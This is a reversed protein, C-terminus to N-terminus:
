LLFSVCIHLYTPLPHIFPQMPPQLFVMCTWLASPHVFCLTPVFVQDQAVLDQLESTAVLIFLLQIGGVCVCLLFVLALHDLAVEYISVVILTSMLDHITAQYCTYMYGHRVVTELREHVTECIVTWAWCDNTCGREKPTDEQCWGSCHPTTPFPGPKTDSLWTVELEAM